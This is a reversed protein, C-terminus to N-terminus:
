DAVTEIDMGSANALAVFNPFSTKVNAVDAIKIEFESKLSAVAFAMAIRHDANSQITETPKQFIGGIIKIGDTLVETKIGLVALGDAMVQIRDSEKVRLEQAGTLVMEGKACAAAIFIAPFEDIALPVLKKSIHVAHLDASKVRIDALMENGIKNQNFLTLDAGMQKLIDIVGTRTPNIHVGKLTIDAKKAISAAVMFFAASSIDSPVQVSTATLTSGGKTSIKNNKVQVSYGFDQLMQETHNRTIAPETITTQGQAYLAALLICSKVQASAIPLQYDIGTLIQGGKIKLPLKGNNSDIVAGMLTLPEIIREMPRNSLSPDGILITDFKQAVLLGAILRAATGSNGLDIPQSPKHLGNLGAGYITVNNNNREIKVGMAVFAKLTTLTDEGSLFGSIKTIGNAIAGLIIARHSISKDGPVKILGSLLQAPKAIFKSM